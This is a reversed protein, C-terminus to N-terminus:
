ATTPRRTMTLGWFQTGNAYGLVTGASDRTLAVQIYQNPALPENAALSWTPICCWPGTKCICARTLTNNAFDILRVYNQGLESRFLMV